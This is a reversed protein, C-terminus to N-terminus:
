TKKIVQAAAVVLGLTLMDDKVLTMDKLYFRTLTSPSKWNCARMIRELSVHKTLAWSAAFARVDHAKVRHYTLNKESANEYTLTVM